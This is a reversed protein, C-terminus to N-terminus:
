LLLARHTCTKLVYNLKHETRSVLIFKTQGLKFWNVVVYLKLLNPPYPKYESLLSMM